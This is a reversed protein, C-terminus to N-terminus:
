RRLQLGQLLVVPQARAQGERLLPRRCSAPMMCSRPQLLRPLNSAISSCVVAWRAVPTQLLTLTHELSVSLLLNRTRVSQRRAAWPLLMHTSVVRSVHRPPPVAIEDLRGRKGPEGSHIKLEVEHTVHDLPNTIRVVAAPLPRAGMRPEHLKHSQMGAMCGAAPGTVKSNITVLGLPSAMEGDINGSDYNSNVFVGMTSRGRCSRNTGENTWQRVHPSPLLLSSAQLCASVMCEVPTGPHWTEAQAPCRSPAPAAMSSLEAFSARCAAAPPSPLAWGSM